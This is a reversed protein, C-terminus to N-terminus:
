KEKDYRINCDKYMARCDKSNKPYGTIDVIDLPKVYGEPYRERKIKKRGM